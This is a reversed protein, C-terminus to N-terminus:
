LIIVRLKLVLCLIVVEMLWVGMLVRILGFVFECLVIVLVSVLKIYVGSFFLSLDIESEVM